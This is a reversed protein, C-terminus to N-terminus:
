PIVETQTSLSNVGSNALSTKQVETRPTTKNVRGRRRIVRQAAEQIDTSVDALWVPIFRDLLDGDLESLLDIVRVRVEIRPDQLMPLLIQSVSESHSLMQTARLAALRRKPSPSELERVLYNTIDFNTISVVHAMAKCMSTPWHTVQEILRAVTFDAFLGEAAQRLPTSASHAWLVTELLAPGASGPRAIGALAAQIDGVMADLDPKRLNHVMEAAVKRNEATGSKAIRVAGRLVQGYDKSSASMLLWLRRQDQPNADAFETELTQLCSLMPLEQLRRKLGSWNPTDVIQALAFALRRDTKECVLNQISKPTTSRLLYGALLNLQQDDTTTRLRAVVTRFASHGPDALLGRQLSDDWHVLSLWADIIQVSKHKPYDLVYAYLTDLLPVRVSPTDKSARAQTGWHACVSQLCGNAQPQLAHLTDLVIKLVTPICGTLMLQSIVTLASRQEALKGSTLLEIAAAQFHTTRGRLYEVDSETLLDWSVIIQQRAEVEDRALLMNLCQLRVDSFPSALGTALLKLAAPNRSNKLTDWTTQRPVHASM